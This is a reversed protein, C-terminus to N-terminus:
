KNEILNLYHKFKKSFYFCGGIAFESLLVDSSTKLNTLIVDQNKM